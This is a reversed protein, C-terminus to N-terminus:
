GKVAVSLVFETDAKVIREQNINEAFIIEPASLAAVVVVTERMLGYESIDAMNVAKVTIFYEFSEVLDPTVFICSKQTEPTCWTKWTETGVKNTEVVYGDIAAGGNHRITVM